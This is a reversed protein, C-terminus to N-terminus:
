EHDSAKWARFQGADISVISTLYTIHMCPGVLRTSTKLRVVRESSYKKQYKILAGCPQQGMGAHTTYTNLRSWVFCWWWELHCRILFPSLNPTMCELLSQCMCIACSEENCVDIGAHRVLFTYACACECCRTHMCECLLLSIGHQCVCSVELGLEPYFIPM